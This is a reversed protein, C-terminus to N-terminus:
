RSFFSVSIFSIVRETNNINESKGMPINMTVEVPLSIPMPKNKPISVVKNISNIM